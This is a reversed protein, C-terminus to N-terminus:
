KTTKKRETDQLLNFIQQLLLSIISFSHALPSVKNKKQPLASIFSSAYLLFSNKILVLTM